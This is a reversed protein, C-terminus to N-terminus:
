CTVADRSLSKNNKSLSNKIVEFYSAVVFFMLLAVKSTLEIYYSLKNLLKYLEYIYLNNLITKITALLMSSIINSLIISRFLNKCLIQLGM